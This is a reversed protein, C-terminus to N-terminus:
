WPGEVLIGVNRPFKDGSKYNLERIMFSWLFIILFKKKEAPDKLCSCVFLELLGATRLGDM